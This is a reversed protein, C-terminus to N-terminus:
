YAAIDIVEINHIECGDTKAYFDKVCAIILRELNDHPTNFEHKIKTKGFRGNGFMWYTIEVVIYFRNM